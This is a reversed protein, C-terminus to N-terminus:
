LLLLARRWLAAAGDGPPRLPRRGLLGTRGESAADVANLQHVVALAPPDDCHEPLAFCHVVRKRLLIQFSVVRKKTIRNQDKTKPSCCAPGSALRSGPPRVREICPAAQFIRVPDPSESHTSRSLRLSFRHM